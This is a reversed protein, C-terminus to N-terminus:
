FISGGYNIRTGFNNTYDILDIFGIIGSCTQSSPTLLTKAFPFSIPTGSNITNLSQSNDIIEIEKIFRDKIQLSLGYYDGTGGGSFTNYIPDAYAEIQGTGGPFSANIALNIQSAAGTQGSVDQMVYFGSAGGPENGTGSNANFNVVCFDVNTDFYTAQIVIQYVGTGGNTIYYLPSPVVPHFDTGGAENIPFFNGFSPGQGSNTQPYESNVCDEVLAQSYLYSGGSYSGNYSNDLLSSTFYLSNIGPLFPSIYQGQDIEPLGSTYILDDIILYGNSQCIGVDNPLIGGTFILSADETTTHFKNIQQPGGSLDIEYIIDTGPYSIDNTVLPVGGSMVFSFQSQLSWSGTSGTSGLSNIYNIEEPGIKTVAFDKIEVDSLAGNSATLQASVSIIEGPANGPVGGIAFWDDFGTFSVNQSSYSDGQINWAWATPGQPEGTSADVFNILTSMLITATPTGTFNATLFSSSVNILNTEVLTKTTSLSDTITLSVNYQGPNTYFVTATAGTASAISGGQFNWLRSLPPQGGSSTDTFNVAQNQYIQIEGSM